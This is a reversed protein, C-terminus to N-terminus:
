PLFGDSPAPGGYAGQAVVRPGGRNSRLLRKYAQGYVTADLTGGGTKKAKDSSFTAQFNGSKISTVGAAMYGAVEGHDGFGLLAMEHAAKAMAALPYDGAAWSTDVATAIADAIYVDITAPLVGAFAPYRAALQAATPTEYAM